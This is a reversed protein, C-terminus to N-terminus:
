LGVLIEMREGKLFNGETRPSLRKSGPLTGPMPQIHILTPKYEMKLNYTPSSSPPSPNVGVSSCFHIHHKCKQKLRDKWWHSTHVNQIRRSISQYDYKQFM